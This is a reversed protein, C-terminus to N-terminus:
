HSAARVINKLVVTTGNGMPPVPIMLPTSQGGQAVVVNAIMDKSFCTGGVGSEWYTQAPRCQLLILVIFPLHSLVLFGITAYLPRILKEFAALRLLFLCISIKCLPLIIFLQGWHFYDMKRYVVYDNDSLYYMHRGLGHSIETM